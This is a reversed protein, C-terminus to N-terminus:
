GAQSGGLMKRMLQSIKIADSSAFCAHLDKKEVKDLMQCCMRFNAISRAVADEPM